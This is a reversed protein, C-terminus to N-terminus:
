EGEIVIRNTGEYKRVYEHIAQRIVLSVSDLRHKKALGVLKEYTDAEEIYSVRRRGDRTKGHRSGTSKKTTSKKNPIRSNNNKM